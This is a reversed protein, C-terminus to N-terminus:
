LFLDLWGDADLDLLAVGGSVSELIFRKEKSHPGRFDVGVAATVDEFVFAPPPPAPDEAPRPTEAAWALSPLVLALWPGVRIRM